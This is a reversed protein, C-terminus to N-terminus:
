VSFGGRHLAGTRPPAIGAPAGMGMGMGMGPQPYAPAAPVPAGAGMGYGGYMNPAMPTMQVMVPAPGTVTPIKPAGVGMSPPPVPVPVPAAPVVPAVPVPAAPVAAAAVTPAQLASRRQKARRRVRTIVTAIVTIVIIIPVVIAWVAGSARDECEIWVDETPSCNHTGLTNYTCQSQWDAGSARSSSSSPPCNIDDVLTTYGHDSGDGFDSDFGSGWEVNNYECGAQQCFLEADNTLFSDDCVTGQRGDSATVVLLGECEHSGGVFRVASSSSPNGMCSGVRGCRIRVDESHQCNHNSNYSCSQLMTNTSACNVDDMLINLSGDPAIDRSSDYTDPSGLGLQLCVVSADVVGFADDCVTGWSGGINVELRGECQTAGDVLRVTPPACRIAVDESHACNHTSSQQCSQLTSETGACNLDDMVISGTGAPAIARDNTSYSTPPLYGLQRCAVRADVISFNDDCVTGWEGNVYVELRGEYQTAGDVLRVTQASASAALLIIGFLRLPGM